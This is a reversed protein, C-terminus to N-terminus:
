MRRVCESFAGIMVPHARPQQLRVMVAQAEGGGRVGVDGGRGGGDGGGAGGREGSGVAAVRRVALAVRAHRQAVRVTSNVRAPGDLAARVVGGHSRQLHSHLSHLSGRTLARAFLIPRSSGNFQLPPSALPAPCGHALVRSGLPSRFASVAAGQLKGQVAYTSHVYRAHFIVCARYMLPSTRSRSTRARHLRRQHRGRRAPQPLPAVHRVGHEDLQGGCTGLYSRSSRKAFPEVSGAVTPNPQADHTVNWASSPKSAAHSMRVSVFIANRM